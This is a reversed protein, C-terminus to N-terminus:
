CGQGFAFLVELLDADDVVGDCNTDEPLASGTQGFAFLVALLDADDVCGDRNIDPSGAASAVIRVRDSLYQVEFAVCPLTDADVEVTHFAGSFNWWSGTRVLIDFTDGLAPVYGGRGKVRLTGDLQVTRGSGSVVVRDYQPNAPDSNDTGALEVEFVADAGMTLNGNLTLIGLPNQDPLSPDDIGPAIAGATNNLNGSLTGAGTLKGGQMALPNNVSLTANRYIRTEGNTQALTNFTLTGSEVSILGSNTTNVSTSFSTPNNPDPSTKRLTGSNEVRNTGSNNYWNGFRVEATAGTANRVTAGNFYTTGAEHVLQSQNVLLGSLGRSYNNVWRLLGANTLGASGGDISASSVQLGTGTFNFTAGASGARLVANDSFAGLTGAINGAHAGTFIHTRDFALTAGSAVSWSVNEHTSNAGTLSLTGEQVNVTANQQQMPVGCTFSNTTTKTLTGLNVVLNSGSNNYWNGFRVEATAGTANRVTAGNFYTIGAEHVLQSQNVLLGSLGRSYNNVWRLLGANTLGASGGDISASSVQLGTGTFNFTAGASGARLVANDSFAGLTGAINGAHAGTFIHTRDFALTAGSAVSWSVNEHTSNAGTLSLTGEQVNVTANQQQMPVGCTFSNTTTKTLTGLNVVLNSGSNNYWNGFRVEATAGTANRVTAGNFYTIGAEHVLQSQNVLLGSLGRSYNNVWRLLGANTLGASGGDISASSVQLGTGTFNFTAGASGARLVANGSFAGLTGAINGAHAGTFIHTRDFALTAGSAVSWSVNEHTSNAGTLSLTGEQVNVTANQQQMPVGCTFSNTTTKTLTGLNVVLNSGSNNYWNGFRVEATAGTANRVTAGNFYTIGAEHVLQSQNVLLGSLGRSYNNVWRLLGANTLGASGGDISASSVQLGTGTFNFTAGASGARLVANGSFAGLTGAINGAHAGTFIHTRDFTLTANQAVGWSVNEHTSNAGTLSLTGEQVNVTANQQQMPVGCTFSNTTTKTLTGLNVVLNSGSYNYWNGFRVEATAGTANRVTAGNFYTTGAEHVLQSQNVLLGSLGRSYNNVWRLVGANTLTGPNGSSDSRLDLSGESWLLTGGSLISLSGPNAGGPDRLTMTGWSWDLLAGSAITVSFIDVNSALLAGSGTPFLVISGPGPLSPQYGCYMHGWNNAYWYVPNGNQDYGCISGQCITRWENSSCQQQWTWTGQTFSASVVLSAVLGLGIRLIKHAINERKM